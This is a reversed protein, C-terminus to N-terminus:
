ICYNSRIQELDRHNLLISSEHNCNCCFLELINSHWCGNKKWACIWWRMFFDYVSNPHYLYSSFRWQLVSPPLGMDPFSPTGVLSCKWYGIKKKEQSSLLTTLNSEFFKELQTQKTYFYLLVLLTIMHKLIMQKLTDNWCWDHNKILSILDRLFLFTTAKWFKPIWKM